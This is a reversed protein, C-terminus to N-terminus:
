KLKKFIEFRYEEIEVYNLIVTPTLTLVIRTEETAVIIKIDM